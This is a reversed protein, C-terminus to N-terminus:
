VDENSRVPVSEPEVKPDNYSTDQITVATVISRSRTRPFNVNSARFTSINSERFAVLHTTNVSGTGTQKEIKIDFNDVWFYTLVVGDDNNPVLPLVSSQAALQQAKMAQATEIECVTDYSICHGLRNAVRVVNHQGTMNHLGLGLLVHKDTMTRGHTAGYILDSAYSDVIRTVTTSAKSRNPHYLLTTLFSILNSPPSWEDSLLEDLQPPWSLEPLNSAYQLIEQRIYEAAKLICGNRNEFGIESAPVTADIVIESKKGHVSLFTLKDKFENLIRGKLKSRYRTDNIQLGYINHLVAMPVAQKKGLIQSNIYQKVSLFDGHSTDQENACGINASGERYAKSFGHTFTRYCSEHYQLEKAIFDLEKIEKDRKVEIDELNMGNALQTSVQQSYWENFKRKLYRKAYGNVTLDLPQYYKTMNTPVNVVCLNNKMYPEVVGSTMQGTFLDMIILAKQNEPLDLHLRQKNTYPIIVSEVYKLSKETNSFHKPNASM